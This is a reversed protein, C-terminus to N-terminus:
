RERSPQAAFTGKETQTCILPARARRASMCPQRSQMHTDLLHTHTDTHTGTYIKKQTLGTAPWGLLCTDPRILSASWHGPPFRSSLLPSEGPAGRRGSRAARSLGGDLATRRRLQSLCVCVLICRCVCATATVFSQPPFLGVALLQCQCREPGTHIM